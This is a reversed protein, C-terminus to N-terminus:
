GGQSEDVDPTRKPGARLAALEARAEDRERLVNGLVSLAADSPPRHGRCAEAVDRLLARAEDREREAAEARAEAAALETRLREREHTLRADASEDVDVAAAAAAAIIEADRFRGGTM